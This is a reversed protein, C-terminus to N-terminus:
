RYARRQVDIDNEELVELVAEKFDDGYARLQEVTEASADGAVNIQVSVSVSGGRDTPEATMPEPATQRMMAMLKGPPCRTLVPTNVVAM